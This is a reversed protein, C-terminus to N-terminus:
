ASFQFGEDVGLSLPLVTGEGKLVIPKGDKDKYKKLSVSKLAGGRSTLVATFLENEVVVEKAKATGEAPAAQPPLLAPPAPLSSPSASPSPEQVTGKGPAPPPPAAQKAFFYQYVILIAISITIALLTRKEM